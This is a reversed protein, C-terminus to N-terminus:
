RRNLPSAGFIGPAARVLGRDVPPEQKKIADGGGPRVVPRRRGRHGREAAAAIAAPTGAGPNGGQAVHDVGRRGPQHYPPDPAHEPLSRRRGGHQRLLHAQGFRLGNPHCNTQTVWTTRAAKKVFRLGNGADGLREIWPHTTHYM